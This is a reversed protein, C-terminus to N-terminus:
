ASSRHASSRRLARRCRSTCRRTACISRAAIALTGFVERTARRRPRVTVALRVASSGAFFHVRATVELLPRRRPGVFGDLRVSSRVTGREEVEVKTIRARWTAGKADIVVFASSAADIPALGGVTVAAFPFGGGPQLRFQAAGTDVVIQEAAEAITVRPAQLAKVGGDLKLHYRRDPAFIGAAQFDLLVWRLSGDPWRETPLAQVPVMARDEDVLAIRAPDKVVGRPLPVGITIPECMRARGPSPPSAVTLTSGSQSVATM